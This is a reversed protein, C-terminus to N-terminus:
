QSVYYLCMEVTQVIELRNCGKYLIQGSKVYIIEANSM